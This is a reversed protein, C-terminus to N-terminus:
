VFNENKYAELREVLKKACTEANFYSMNIKLMDPKKHFMNLVGDVNFPTYGIGIYHDYTPLGENFMPVVPYCGLMIAEATAVSCIDGLSASFVFESSAVKRLYDNRNKFEIKFGQRTFNELHYFDAWIDKKNQEPVCFTIDYGEKLLPSLLYTELYFQKDPSIRGPVVITKEVKPVELLRKDVEIPFGAEIYFNNPYLKQMAIRNRTNFVIAINIIEEMQIKEENPKVQFVYPNASTGNVQSIVTAKTGKVKNLDKYHMVWLFDHSCLKKAYEIDTIMRFEYNLKKLERAYLAEYPQQWAAQKEKNVLLYLM